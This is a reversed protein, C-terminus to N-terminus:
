ARERPLLRNSRAEHGTFEHGRFDGDGDGINGDAGPPGAAPCGGEAWGSAALAGGRKSPLPVRGGRVSPDRVREHFGVNCCEAGPGAFLKGARHIRRAGAPYPVAAPGTGLGGKVADRGCAPTAASLAPAAKPVRVEERDIPLFGPAAGGAEAIRVWPDDAACTLPDAVAIGGGSRTCTGALRMARPASIRGVPGGTAAPEDRAGAPTAPLAPAM